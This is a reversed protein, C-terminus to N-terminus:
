RSTYALEGTHTDVVLVAPVSRDVLWLRDFTDLHFDVPDTFPTGGYFSVFEPEGVALATRFVRAGADSVGLFVGTADNTLAIASFGDFGTVADEFLVSRDGTATDVSYVRNDNPDTALIRNNLPDYVMDFAQLTPGTGVAATSFPTLTGDTLDIRNLESGFYDSLIICDPSGYASLTFSNWVVESLDDSGLLARDGSSTNVRILHPANEDLVVLETPEAPNVVAARPRVMESGSGFSEGTLWNVGSLPTRDGTAPDYSVVLGLTADAIFGTTAEPDLVLGTPELLMPGAGIGGSYVVSREGTSLDFEVVGPLREAAFLRGSTLALGSLQFFDQAFRGGSLRTRDGSTPDVATIGDFPESVLLRSGAPDWVIDAARDFPTGSGTDNDSVVVRDGSSLDVALVRRGSDLIFARDGEPDVAM